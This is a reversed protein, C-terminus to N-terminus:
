RSRAVAITVTSRAGSSDSLVASYTGASTYTHHAIVLPTDPTPCLEARCGSRRLAALSSGDGFDVTYTKNQALAAEFQVPLPATGSTPAATFSPSADASPALTMAHAVSPGSTALSASLLLAIARALTLPQASIM